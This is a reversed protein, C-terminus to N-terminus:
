QGITTKLNYQAMLLQIEHLIKNQRAQDEANVERLYDTTNIVGNELQAMSTNKIKNRLDVIEQDSTLLDRFKTVESNQQRATFNNNFLFTEKQLAIGMRNLNILEKDNKQTYFASLAWNLRIGGLYYPEFSNSLMNLAPRGFGTQLFLSVKPAKRADLMKNQIDLSKNQSEYVLLEPRNITSLNRFDNTIAAPKSLMTGAGLTQNIFLGLVDLYANKTATLEITRQDARLLEAKLNDLSSKLMVGNDIGAQTKKIGSDIDKKLLTVQVLQEDLMLIGFYLQNIRERLKYLETELKQEEIEANANLAEKQQKIIGGDFITQNIDGYIKYQDKGPTPINVGPVSIPVRTVESQYTAQGNISIQPLYGKSANLVSFEKSKSILERQKTMPYHQRALEYCAELTLNQARVMFGALLLCCLTAYKFRTKM